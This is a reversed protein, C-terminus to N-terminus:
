AKRHSQSLREKLLFCLDAIVIAASGSCIGIRLAFRSAAAGLVPDAYPGVLALTVIVGVVAYVSLRISISQLDNILSFRCPSEWYLAPLAFTVACAIWGAIQLSLDESSAPFRFPSFISMPFVVLFWATRYLWIYPSFRSSPSM